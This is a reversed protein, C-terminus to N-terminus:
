LVEKFIRLTDNAAKEWTFNEEVLKRGNNGMEDALKDNMFIKGLAKALSASDAPPVLLGNYEDRVVFPIGGIRTGIVPRGCANAEILVMGFGETKLYTPLVTVNSSRYFFPLKDEPVYGSFFVHTELKLERVQSRYKDKYDGEGVIVLKVNIGEKHLHNLAKILFNLGKHKHTKDLQAVFLIIREEKLNYKERLLSGDLSPNFKEIDVGPPVASSKGKYQQLYPSLRIYYPSLAIIRDALSITKKCFMSNYLKSIINYMPTEKILDSYYTLVFPIKHKRAIRSAVDAFYPVPTHGNILDPKDEKILLELKRKLGLCIPTNSVKFSIPIRHINLGDIKEDVYEKENHNTTFINFTEGKAALRIAINYSYNEVGGTKPYFYPLVM